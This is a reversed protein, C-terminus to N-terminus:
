SAMEEIEKNIDIIINQWFIVEILNNSSKLEYNYFDSFIYKM